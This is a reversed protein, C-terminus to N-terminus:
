SKGFASLFSFVVKLFPGSGAILQLGFCHIVYFFTVQILQKCLDAFCDHSM